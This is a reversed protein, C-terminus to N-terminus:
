SVLLTFSGKLIGLVMVGFLMAFFFFGATVFGCGDQKQEVVSYVIVSLILLAGIIAVVTILLHGKATSLRERNYDFLTM